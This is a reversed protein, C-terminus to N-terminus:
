SRVGPFRARMERVALILQPSLDPLRDVLYTIHAEMAEQFRSTLNVLEVGQLCSNQLWNGGAVRRELGEPAKRLARKHDPSISKFSKSDASIVQTPEAVLSNQTIM